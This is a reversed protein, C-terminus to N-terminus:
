LTRGAYFLVRYTTVKPAVLPDFTLEVETETESPLSPTKLVVNAVDLLKGNEDFLALGMEANRITATGTNVVNGEFHYVTDTRTAVDRLRLASTDVPAVPTETYNVTFRADEAAGDRDPFRAEFVAAQGPAVIRTAFSLPQESLTRGEADVLSITVKLNDLNVSGTNQLLGTVRTVGYSWTLAHHTVEARPGAPPTPTEPLGPTTGPVAPAAGAGPSTGTPAKTGAHSEIPETPPQTEVAPTACGALLLAVVLIGASVLTQPSTRM